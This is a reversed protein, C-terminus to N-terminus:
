DKESLDSIGFDRGILPSLCRLFYKGPCRIGAQLVTVAICHCAAPSCFKGKQIQNLPGTRAQSKWPRNQQATTVGQPTVAAAEGAIHFTGPM